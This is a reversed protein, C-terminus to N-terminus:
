NGNRNILMHYDEKKSLKGQYLAVIPKEYITKEKDEVEMKDIVIAKIVGDKGISHFPIIKLKLSYIDVGKVLESVKEEEVIHVPKSSIPDKLTNGTDVLARLKVNKDGLSLTVLYTESRYSKKLQVIKKSMINLIVYTAIVSVAFVGIPSGWVKRLLKQIIGTYFFYNMIGATFMCCVNLLFFVKAIKKIESFGCLVFTMLMATILHFVCQVLMGTGTLVYILAMISGIFGALLQRKIDPLAIAIKSVFWVVLWDMIFNIAFYEDIFLVTKM